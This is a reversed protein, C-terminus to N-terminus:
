EPKPAPPPPTEGERAPPGPRREKMYQRVMPRDMMPGHPGGERNWQQFKERIVDEGMEKARSMMKRMQGEFEQLTIYLTAKQKATFGSSIKDFADKKAQLRKDDISILAQLQANIEDDTAGEKATVERLANMTKDREDYLKSLSDRMEQMHKVMIVTQEDTLELSRSVRVMMITSVMDRLDEDPFGGPHGGRPPASQEAKKAPDGAQPEAFAPLALVAVLM